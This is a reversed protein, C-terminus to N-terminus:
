INTPKDNDVKFCLCQFKKIKTKIVSCRVGIFIKTILMKKAEL